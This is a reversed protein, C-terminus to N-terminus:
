GEEIVGNDNPLAKVSPALRKKTQIIGMRLRTKVNILENM